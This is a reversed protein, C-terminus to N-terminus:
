QDELLQELLETADKVKARESEPLRALRKELSRAQKRRGADLLQKGRGTVGVRVVRGDTPDPEREILGDQELKSLLRTVTPPQIREAEALEGCTLPGRRELTALASLLSPSMGGQAEQRLRRATRMLALRLRAVLERDIAVESM